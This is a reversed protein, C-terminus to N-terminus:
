QPAPPQRSEWIMTGIRAILKRTEGLETAIATLQPNSGPADFHSLLQIFTAILIAGIGMLAHYTAESYVQSIQVASASYLNYRGPISAAYLITLSGAIFAIASFLGWFIKAIKKGM